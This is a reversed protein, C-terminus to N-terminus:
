NVILKKITSGQENILRIFYIGAPLGSLDMTKVHLGQKLHLLERQQLQGSINILELTITNPHILEFSLSILNNAPNPFLNLASLGPIEQIDLKLVEITSTITDIGCNNAIIMTISFFGEFPFNYTISNGEFTNGQIIWTVTEAGETTNEFEVNYNDIQNFSFEPNLAAGVTINVPGAVGECGNADTYNVFYATSLLPLALPNSIQADSLGEEPFWLYEIAGTALLQAPIGNCIFQDDSLQVDAAQFVPINLQLNNICGLESSALLQLSINNSAVFSIEASDADIGEQGSWFYNDAGSAAIEVLAGECAQSPANIIVEPLPNVSIILTDRGECGPQNYATLVYTTSIEPSALTILADSNILGSVPQWEFFQFDTDSQILITDGSCITQDEGLSFSPPNTPNINVAKLNNGPCTAVYIVTSATLMPLVLETGSSLENWNNDYYLITPNLAGADGTINAQLVADSGICASVINVELDFLPQALGISGNAGSTAGNPPFNTLSASNTTGNQGASVNIFPNGGTHFVVGGAGGGGPGQAQTNNLINMLQNGGNGGRANVAISPITNASRIMIAGGGGAGGCGDIGSTFGGSGSNGGNGGNAVIEGAGTINGYNEIYIIGGGNGGNGGLNDNQDGAGGGGGMFLSENNLILPRGGKGGEIRRWDGQWVSTNPGLTLPNQNVGSFSYGGRGGGSSINSSFGPSELNWATILNNNSINPNGNGNYAGLGANAGGGGGANHSTGGGGGNAPAGKCYRGGLQDYDSWNGAISEGKEAGEGPNVDTFRTGGFFSQNENALGGRFGISTANIRGNLILDGSTEIAVVGGTLGNWAQGNLSAGTAVTLQNYRPVRLVQTRGSVAYSKSLGCFLSILNGQVAKVEALEYNGCTRYDTISGWSDSFIDSSEILAGQMQIIMILDGTSLAQPFRSNGNLNGDSVTIEEDGTNADVTLFTYENVIMNGSIQQNGQKGKQSYSPAIFFLNAAIVAAFLRIHNKM